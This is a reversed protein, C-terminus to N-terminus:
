SSHVAINLIKSMEKMLKVTKDVDVVNKDDTVIWHDSNHLEAFDLVAFTVWKGSGFRTPKKIPYGKKKAIEEVKHKWDWKDQNEVKSRDNNCIKFCLKEKEIQLYIEQTNKNVLKRNWWFAMFGGSKNSVYEWYRDDDFEKKIIEFFGIWQLNEWKSVPKIQYSKVDDDLFKLHEFYEVFIPNKIGLELGENLLELFMERKFVEYGDDDVKKYSCQDGTKFFIPIINEEDVGVEKKVHEFYRSLQDSHQKSHVKDEIIVYFEENVRLLVDINKAQKSVEIDNIEDLTKGHLEFFKFILKKGVEHLEKNLSKNKPHAWYCLWSIFADQTLETTGFSFLNPKEHQNM